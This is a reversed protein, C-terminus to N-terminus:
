NHITENLKEKLKSSVAARELIIKLLSKPDGQFHFHCAYKHEWTRWKSGRPDGPDHFREADHFFPDILIDSFLDIFKRQQSKPCAPTTTNLYITVFDPGIEIADILSEKDIFRQM